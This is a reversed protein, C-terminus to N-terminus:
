EIKSFLEKDVREIQEKTTQIDREWNGLEEEEKEKLKKIDKLMKEIEIVKKKAKEFVELSKEFKDLRIFVPEAKKVLKAAEKFKKPVEDEEEIDGTYPIPPEQMMRTGISEDADVENVEKGGTIAEKIADQSFKEGIQNSPFSPLQPLKEGDEPFGPLEPLVPLEPLSIEEKKKKSFLGMKINQFINKKIYILYLM